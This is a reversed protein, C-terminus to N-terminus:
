SRKKFYIVMLSIVQIALCIGFAPSILSSTSSKTKTNYETSTSTDSSYSSTSTSSLHTSPVSSTYKQWESFGGLLNYVRTYNLSILTTAAIVSRGGSQCYVLIPHSKNVPLENKNKTINNYPINVAGEIHGAQYENDWRVDLIFLDPENDILEKAKSVTLSIYSENSITAESQLFSSSSLLVFVFWLSLLPTNRKSIILSSM